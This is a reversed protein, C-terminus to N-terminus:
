GLPLPRLTPGVEVPHYEYLHRNTENFSCSGWTMGREVWLATQLLAVPRQQEQSQEQCLILHDRHSNAITACSTAHAFAEKELATAALALSPTGM